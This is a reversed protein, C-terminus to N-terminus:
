LVSVLVIALAIGLRAFWIATRTGDIRLLSDHIAADFGDLLQGHTPAARFATIAATALVGAAAVALIRVSTAPAAVM